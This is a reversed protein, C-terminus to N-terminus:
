ERHRLCVIGFDWENLVDPESSLIGSPYEFISQYESYYRYLTQIYSKKLWPM